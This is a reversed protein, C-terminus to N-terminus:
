VKPRKSPGPGPNSERKKTEAETKMPLLQAPEELDLLDHRMRRREPTNEEEDVQM